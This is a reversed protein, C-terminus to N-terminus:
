RREERSPAPSAPAGPCEEPEAGTRDRDSEDSPRLHPFLLVDRIAACGTLLMVLRDVGIGVGAAPPMGHELAELFDEDLPQAEEDGAERWRQQEAFRRRQEEPDNLESFANAYEQGLIFLEFREVLDDPRERHGKALPSISMPYDTVFTPRRLRPAVSLDFLKEIRKGRPAGAPLGGGLRRCAEDLAGDSAALVDIGAQERVLDALSRREFPPALDVVEDTGEPSPIQLAGRVELATQRVLDEVLSMAERYDAYAWYFELLTFEPNHHRDLGENRFVRGLEYVRELGGVLLKKLPLEEAIRLYLPMDLAHHHTRFPRASAGGYVAQLVPTEVELFGRADLERRLVRIAAARRAFVERVEPNLILDLYRRRYRAERDRFADYVVGEREKVAPLPRLAKALVSLGEVRISIEGTRTRFPVGTAGILDGLDLLSAVRFSEEGMEDARLYLQIRGSPDEIHAFVVKGMPRLSRIRGALAATVREELGAFGELVEAALHTRRFGHPYPQVGLARLARLKGRRAELPDTLGEM